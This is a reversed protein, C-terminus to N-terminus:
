IPLIALTFHKGALGLLPNMWDETPRQRLLVELEDELRKRVEAEPLSDKGPSKQRLQKGMAILTQILGDLGNDCVGTSRRAQTLKSEASPLMANHLQQLAERQTEEPTRFQGEQPM